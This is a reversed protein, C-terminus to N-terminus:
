AFGSRFLFRVRLGLVSVRHLEVDRRNVNGFQEPHLPVLAAALFGAESFGPSPFPPFGLAPGADCGASSLHSQGHHQCHVHHGGDSKEGRTPDASDRRCWHVGSCASSCCFSARLRVGSLDAVFTTRAGAFSQRNKCPLRGPWSECIEGFEALQRALPRTTILLDAVVRLGLRRAPELPDLDLGVHVAIVM